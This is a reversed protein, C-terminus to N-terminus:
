GEKNILFSDSHKQLSSLFRESYVVNTCRRARELFGETARRSLPKLNFKLFASLKLPKGDSAWKSVNAQYIGRADGYAANPWAKKRDYPKFDVNVDKHNIIKEGIWESVKTSVANGVLRWRYSARGEVGHLSFDTWGEPFGQLREADQIDLTGVYDQSPLWIAPPSAIGLTSGCKIPPVGERVWGVGRLGETWYFGFADAGEVNSPKGDMDPEVYNDAFLVNWPEANKSALLVVRARRQPLGFCRADIVRYAWSYGLRILEDTVYEMAKGRDLRLMYPVNEILIWEPRDEYKKKGILDFLTNVLGSNAGTIGKKGGAQSLDQCPFGATVIYSDPLSELKLIDDHIEAGPFNKELISRALPDKECFFTTEFGFKKLGLEIGGIGSFLSVAKM